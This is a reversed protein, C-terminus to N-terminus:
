AHAAAGNARARPDPLTMAPPRLPATLIPATPSPAPVPLTDQLAFMVAARLRARFSRGDRALAHARITEPDYRAPDFARVARIVANVSQEEIFEGSTGHAVTHRAGGARVALVPRGCANVELPILGFDDVSPFVAAACDQMAGVLADDDLRGLFEVNSAARRRLAPMAPGDGAVLLRLDPMQAFADIVLSPRKYAEV